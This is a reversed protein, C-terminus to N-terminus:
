VSGVRDSGAERSERLRRGLAAMGRLLRLLLLATTVVGAVGGFFFGVVFGLLAASCDM